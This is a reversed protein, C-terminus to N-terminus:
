DPVVKGRNLINNPDWFRKLAQMWTLKTTDIERLLTAKKELGIGHEASFSGGLQKIGSTILSAIPEYLDHLSRHANVTFHLNGDALHGVVFLQLTEDFEALRRKITLVVENIKSPPISIDYWLGGPYKRDVAWDERLRWYLQRDRDNQAIWADTIMDCTFAHELLQELRSQAVKETEGEFELLLLVDGDPPGRDSVGADSLALAAQGRCMVEAAALHSNRRALAVCEVAKQYDNFGLLASAKFRPRDVLDLSVATIIGLCGESGIFQKELSFGENCKRVQHLESLIDGNALVVELGLLRERMTGYRFAENGGANTAALGGLTASDRAGLDLGLTLEHEALQSDLQALTVGAEVVASRSVPDISRIRNFREMSIILEGAQTIAGQSLGTRGGQVVIPQKAASCIKLVQSLQLADRPRVLVGARYHDPHVGPDRCELAQGHLVHEIGVLEQILTLVDRM